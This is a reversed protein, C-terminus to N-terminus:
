RLSVCQEACVKIDGVIIGFLRQGMRMEVARMRWSGCGEDSMKTYYTADSVWPTKRFSELWCRKGYSGTEAKVACVAAEQVLNNFPDEVSAIIPSDKPLKEILGILVNRLEKSRGYLLM